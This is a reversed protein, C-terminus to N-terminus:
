LDPHVLTIPEVTAIKAFDSRNGTAIPLPPTQTLACAAIWMDNVGGGKLQGSLRAYITAWRATVVANAPIVAYRGILKDLQSQRKVGWGGNIAGALLEGVTAFSLALPHQALLAEFESYRERRWAIWSFVDTDVLIPGDPVDEPTV